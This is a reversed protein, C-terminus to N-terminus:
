VLYDETLVRGTYALALRSLQSERRGPHRFYCAGGDHKTYTKRVRTSTMPLRSFGANPMIARRGHQFLLGSRPMSSAIAVAEHEREVPLGSVVPDAGFGAGVVELCVDVGGAAGCAARTTM